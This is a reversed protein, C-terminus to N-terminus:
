SDPAEGQLALAGKAGFAKGIALYFGKAGPAGGKPKRCPSYDTSQAPRGQSGESLKPSLPPPVQLQNIESEVQCRNRIDTLMFNSNHAEASRPHDVQVRDPNGHVNLVVFGRCHQLRNRLALSWLSLKPRLCSGPGDYVLSRAMSTKCLCLCAEDSCLGLPWAM